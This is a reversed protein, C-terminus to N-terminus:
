NTSYKIMHIILINNIGGVIQLNSDPSQYYMHIIVVENMGM